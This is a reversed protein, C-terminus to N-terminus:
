KQGCVKCPSFGAKMAEAVTAFRATCKQCNYYRCHSNHFIKSETNGHLTGQGVGFAPNAARHAGPAARRVAPARTAPEPAVRDGGSSVAPVDPNQPQARRAFPNTKEGGQSAATASAPHGTDPVGSRAPSVSPTERVASESQPAKGQRVARRVGPAVRKHAPGATDPAPALQPSSLTEPGAAALPTSFVLLLVVCLCFPLANKM